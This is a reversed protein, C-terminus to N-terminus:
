AGHSVEVAQGLSPIRYISLIPTPLSSCHGDPVRGAGDDFTSFKTHVSWAESIM